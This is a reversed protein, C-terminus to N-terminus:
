HLLVVRRLCGGEWEPIVPVCVFASMHASACLPLTSPAQFVVGLFAVQFSVEMPGAWHSWACTHVNM